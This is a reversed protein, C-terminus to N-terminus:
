AARGPPVDDVGAQRGQGVQVVAAGHAGLHVAAVARADEGLYRVREQAGDDAHVQRRRPVVGRAESEEGGLGASGVVGRPGDLAERRLLPEVDQRPAVDGDRGGEHTGGRGRAHRDEPLHEHRVPLARQGPQVEVPAREPQALPRLPAQAHVERRERRARDDVLAHEGRGLEFREERVERVGPERALDGQDV